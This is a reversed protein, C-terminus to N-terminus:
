RLDAAKELFTPILHMPQEGTPQLSRRTSEMLFGKLVDFPVAGTRHRVQAVTEMWLVENRAADLFDHGGWTLRLEIWKLSHEVSYARIGEILGAEDLLRLHETICEAAHGTIRITSSDLRRDSAELVLMIKRVLEMDRRMFANRALGQEELYSILRLLGAAWLLSGTM